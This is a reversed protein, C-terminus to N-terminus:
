KQAAKQGAVYERAEDLWALREDTTMDAFPKVPEPIQAAHWTLFDRAVEARKGGENSTAWGNAYFWSDAVEDHSMLWDGNESEATWRGRRAETRDENTWVWMDREAEVFAHLASLAGPYFSGGTGVGEGAYHVWAFTKNPAERWVEVGEFEFPAEKTYKSM